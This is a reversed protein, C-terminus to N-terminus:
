LIEEIRKCTVDLFEEFGGDCDLDVSRMMLAVAEDEKGLILDESVHLSHKPYLLMTNKIKFNKGYAFMQYKDAASIDTKSGVSKYKTDIIMNPLLIDPKLKLNGFNREVQLQTKPEIQLFVKGIFREFLENMDFLFAFSQQDQSFLPTLQKLLLIAMDFSKQYRLNMRHFNINQLRNIDLPEYQTEDYIAEILRLEKKNCTFPMLTKVAFLFFRNLPNDMSFEDFECYIKQAIINYKLNENILYKGRLVSLNEEFTVYERYLGVQLQHLLEQTFIKILTELLNFQMNASGAIMENKLNVDYTHALMYIFTDLNHAEDKSIKPLIYYDQGKVHLIGCHQTAKIAKYTPTFYNQLKPNEKIANILAEDSITEYEHFYHNSKM